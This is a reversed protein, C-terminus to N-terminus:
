ESQVPQTWTLEANMVSLHIFTNWAVVFVRAAFGGDPTPYRFVVDPDPECLDIQVAYADRYFYRADPPDVFVYQVGDLRLVASRRLERLAEEKAHPDGIWVDLAFTAVRGPLDVLWERLRSDHFTIDLERELDEISM